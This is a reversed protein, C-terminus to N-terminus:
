TANRFRRVDGAADGKEGSRIRIVHRTLRQNDIAAHNEISGMATSRRVENFQRQAAGAGTGARATVTKMRRLVAMPPHQPLARRQDTRCWGCAHHRRCPARARAQLVQANIAAM